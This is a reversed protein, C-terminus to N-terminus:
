GVMVAVTFSALTGKHPASFCRSPGIRGFEFRGDLEAERAWCTRPKDVPITNLSSM